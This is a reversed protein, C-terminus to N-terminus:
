ITSEFCEIFCKIDILFKGKFQIDMESLVPNELIKLSIVGLLAKSKINQLDDKFVISMEQLTPEGESYKLMQLNKMQINEFDSKTVKKARIANNPKFYEWILFYSNMIEGLEDMSIDSRYGLLVTLFFPQYKYIEDSIQHFYEEDMKEIKSMLGAVNEADNYDQESLYM